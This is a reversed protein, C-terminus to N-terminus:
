QVICSTEEALHPASGMGKRNIACRDDDLLTLCYNLDELSESEKDVERVVVVYQGRTDIGVVNEALYSVKVNRRELFPDVALAKTDGEHSHRPDVLMTGDFYEAKVMKGHTLLIKNRVISRVWTSAENHKSVKKRQSVAKGVATGEGKTGTRGMRYRGNDLQRDASVVPAGKGHPYSKTLRNKM